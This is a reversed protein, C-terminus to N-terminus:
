VLQSIIVLVLIIILFIWSTKTIVIKRNYKHKLMDENLEGSEELHLAPTKINSIDKKSLIYYGSCDDVDVYKIDKPFRIIQFFMLIDGAAGSINAISVFILLSSKILIGIILTVIGIFFLPFLLAVIIGKKDIQKKCMCYFIGKEIFMGLFLNKTKVDKSCLFGIYHLFEHLIFWLIMVLITISDAVLYESGFIFYIVAYCVIFLLLAYINMPGTKMKYKYYKM